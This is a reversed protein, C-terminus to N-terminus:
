EREWDVTDVLWRGDPSVLTLRLRGFDLPLTVETITETRPQLTPEGTVQTAPVGAPNAGRLQEILTPTSFPRMADQWRKADPGGGLWAAAFREATREPTLAGARTRPSPPEPTLNAGDDGTHPDVTTIPERPRTTLGTASQDPGSVLRAAGIIGFVVVAIGLAVGIRSRLARTFLFELARRMVTM